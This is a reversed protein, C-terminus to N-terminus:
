PSASLSLLLAHSGGSLRLQRCRDLRLTQERFEHAVAM